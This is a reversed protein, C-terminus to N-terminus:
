PLSCTHGPPLGPLLLPDQLSFYRSTSCHRRSAPCPTSSRERSSIPISLGQLNIPQPHTTRLSLRSSDRPYRSRQASALPISPCLSTIVPKPLEKCHHQTSSLFSYKPLRSVLRGHLTCGPPQSSSAPGAPMASHCAEVTCVPNPWYAATNPRRSRSVFSM